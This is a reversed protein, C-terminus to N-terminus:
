QTLAVLAIGLIKGMMLQFPKVSSILIEVVRNTKEEIVGRMVMAGYIFIFMYILFASIYGIALAAETSSLEESGDAKIKITRIHVNPNIADITEVEIGLEKLKDSRIKEEIRSSIYMKTNIDSQNESILEINENEPDEPIILLAYYNGDSFVKKISEVNTNKAFTFKISKNDKLSEEFKNSSDKVLIYRLQDSELQTIFVTVAVMAAMLAPALLTLIIFTKKRVRTLYERKIILLIKDM